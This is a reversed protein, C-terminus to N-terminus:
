DLYASTLTTTPGTVPSGLNSDVGGTKLIEKRM